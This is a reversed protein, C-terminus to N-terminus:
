RKLSILAGKETILSTLARYKDGEITEIATDSIEYLKKLAEYKEITPELVEDNTDGLYEAIMSAVPDDETESIVVVAVQNTGGSVGILSIAKSIQNQASAYLLTEVDLKNSINSGNEMAYYANAAAFYIHNPETIKAADFLQYTKGRTRRDLEGMAENIDAVSVNEAAAITVFLDSDTLPYSYPM